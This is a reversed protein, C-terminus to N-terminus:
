RGAKSEELCRAMSRVGDREGSRAARVVFFGHDLTLEILGVILPRDHLV